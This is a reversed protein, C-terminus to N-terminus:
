KVVSFYILDGERRLHGIFFVDSQAPNNIGAGLARVSVWECLNLRQVTYHYIPKLKVDYEREM